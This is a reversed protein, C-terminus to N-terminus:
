NRYFKSYEGELAGEGLSMTPGTHSKLDNIGGFAADIHWIVNHTEDCSLTLVDDRTSKLFSMLKCLKFLDQEGPGKVRTSLFVIAPHIDPRARKCLFLGKAVFTRFLEQKEKPLKPDKEDVKLLNNNWPYNSKTLEEPFETVMNEVYDMMEVILKGSSTFVLKM